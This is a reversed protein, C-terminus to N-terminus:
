SMRSASCSSVQVFSIKNLHYQRGEELAISINAEKVRRGPMLLPLRFKGGGGDVIEVSQGTVHATFYGNKQYFQTLMQEDDELKASDYTKPFLNEFFISNPIGTPRLNRMSRRLILPSFVTAGEFHIQGVQVKPGEDVKFLIELAAPPIQRLQVDVKAFQRGREALYEQLVVRARQVKNRDYTSESTLSVRREKFRDAVESLTISKLGDYNITRIVPREVVKFTIIWGSEAPEELIQIDDFRGTNYLAAVDRTLDNRNYVDGKKTFVLARLTDQPVRRAGQFNVEQVIDPPPANTAGPKPAQPTPQAPAQPVTEFPNPPKPAQPAPQQQSWLPLAGPLFVALSLVLLRLCGPRFFAM